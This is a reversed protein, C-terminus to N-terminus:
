TVDGVMRRQIPTGGSRYQIDLILLSKAVRRPVQTDQIVGGKQLSPGKTGFSRCSPVAEPHTWVTGPAMRKKKKFKKFQLITSKCHQIIKLYVAFHNLM